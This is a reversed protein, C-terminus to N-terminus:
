VHQHDDTAGQRRSDTWAQQLLDVAQRAIAPALRYGSGNAAGAFIILGDPGLATVVPERTESYADCCIRGSRLEAARAPDYPRLCARADAVDESTLGPATAIADPDVDWEMRTYSFLWHGRHALPLLFADERDLILLESGADPRQELHMAVIKKVRLRLPSVLDRWAPEALWPGPALAVQAFAHDEGSSTRVSVSRRGTTLGTIRTGELFRVRPRALAALSQTLAYVDTYHCGRLEWCRRGDPATEAPDADAPRYGADAPRLGADLLVRARVPYAPLHPHSTMLAAYYRDSAASMERTRPTAGRVLSLGASRRTAGSGALDRDFVTIEADRDAAALERAILCGIIGAGIVAVTRGTM